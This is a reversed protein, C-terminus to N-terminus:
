FESSIDFYISQLSSYLNSFFKGNTINAINFLIDDDVDAGFGITYIHGSTADNYNLLTELREYMSTENYHKSFTDKGDTLLIIGYNRKINNALDNKRTNNVIEAARVTVAYLATGGIAEIGNIANTINQRNPGVQIDSFLSRDIRGNFTIITVNDRDNMNSIFQIAGQKANNLKNDYNMSDSRDILLVVLAPKKVAQWMNIVATLLPTNPEKLPPINNLTPNVVVGNAETFPSNSYNWINFYTNAPRIGYQVAAAQNDSRLIFDVFLRSAEMKDATMWKANDLICIPHTNWYTGDSPYIFVLDDGEVLVSTEGNPLVPNHGTNRYRLNYNIVNSEYSSVAHLYSPGNHVMKNLLDTDIKGLHAVSAALSGIILKSRNSNVQSITIEQKIGDSSNQFAYLASMLTLRGSNSFSPHAHGYRFEVGYDSTLNLGGLGTTNLTLNVIQQWSIPGPWGLAKALPRWMAVGLIINCTPAKCMTGTNSIIQAGTKNLWMQNLVGIWQLTAPSYLDPQLQSVFDSGTHYIKVKVYKGNKLQIWQNNFDNVMQDM